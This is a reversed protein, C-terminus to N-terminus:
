VLLSGSFIFRCPKDGGKVNEKSQQDLTVGSPV